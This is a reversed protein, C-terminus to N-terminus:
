GLYFPVHDLCVIFDVFPAAAVTAASQHTWASPAGNYTAGAAGAARDASIENSPLLANATSTLTVNMNSATGKGPPMWLLSRPLSKTNGAVPLGNSFGGIGKSFQEYLNPNVINSETTGSFGGWGPSMTPIGLQYATSGLILQVNVSPDLQKALTLESGSAIFLAVGRILCFEANITQGAQQVSTDSATANLPLGGAVASQGVGYGFAVVKQGSAITYQFPTTSVTSTFRVRSFYMNYQPQPQGGIAAAILYVEDATLSPAGVIQVQDM